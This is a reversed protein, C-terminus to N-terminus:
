GPGDATFTTTGSFDLIVSRAAVKVIFARVSSALNFAGFRPGRLHHWAGVKDHYQQGVM